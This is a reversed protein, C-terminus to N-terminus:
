YLRRTKGQTNLFVSQVAPGDASTWDVPINVAQDGKPLTFNITNPHGAPLTKVQSGAQIRHAGKSPGFTVAIKGPADLYVGLQLQGDCGDPTCPPKVLGLMRPEGPPIKVLRGSSTTSALVTENRLTMHYSRELMVIYRPWAPCVGGNFKFYGHGRFDIQCEGVGIPQTSYLAEIRKNFFDTYLDINQHMPEGKGIALMAVPGDARADVWDYQAPAIQPRVTQEIGSEYDHYTWAQTVMLAAVLAVVGAFGAAAHRRATLGFVAAAVLPISVVVVGLTLHHTFYGSALHIRQQLGFTGPQEIANYAHPAAFLAALVLAGAIAATRRDIRGPALVLAICALPALYMTYREVPNGLTAWAEFRGILPYFVLTAAAIAVLLPGVREDRWNAPRLMLAFVAVVPIIAFAVISAAAHRGATGAIQGISAHHGLVDYNTANPKLIFVLLLAAVAAGLGIWLARPWANARARWDARPHRVVDLALAVVAVVFLSLMQTRTAAALLAFALSVGLWRLSTKRLATVLSALSATAIPYVLNETAIFVTLAMWVGTVALAAAILARRPGVYTRALLWTPIVALSALASCVIKATGYAQPASGFHWVVSLLAPWLPPLGQNSGRWELGNGAALNQSLKGYIMEDPFLNPFLYRRGVWTYVLVAVLYIAALAALPFARHAIVAAARDRAASRAPAVAPGEAVVAPAQAPQVEKVQKRPQAVQRATRKRRVQRKTPM